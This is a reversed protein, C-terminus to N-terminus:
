RMEQDMSGYRWGRGNCWRGVGGVVGMEGDIGGDRLGYGWSEVGM